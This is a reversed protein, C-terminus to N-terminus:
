AVQPSPVISKCDGCVRQRSDTPRQISKDTRDRIFVKDGQALVQADRDAKLTANNPHDLMTRFDIFGNDHAISSLHEGQKVTHTRAMSQCGMTCQCSSAGSIRM